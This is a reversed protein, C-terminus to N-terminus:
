DGGLMLHMGAGIELDALGTADEDISALADFGLARIPFFRLGVACEILREVELKGTDAAFSVRPSTRVEAMLKTNERADYDLGLGINFYTVQQDPATESAAGNSHFYLNEARLDTAHLIFHFRSPEADWTTSVGLTTERHEYSLSNVTVGDPSVFSRSSNFDNKTSAALNVAMSMHEKAGEGLWNVPLRLRFGGLANSQPEAVHIIRSSSVIAEGVGGLGVSLVWRHADERDSLGFAWGRNAHVALSPLIAGTPLDFLRPPFTTNRERLYAGIKTATLLAEPEADPLPGGVPPVPGALEASAVIAPTVPAEEAFVPAPDVEDPEGSCVERGCRSCFDAAAPQAIGCRWCYVTEQPTVSRGCAHCYFAEDASEAGCMECVVTGAAPQCFGVIWLMSVVLIALAHHLSRQHVSVIRPKQNM